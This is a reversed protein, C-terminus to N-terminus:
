QKGAGNTQVAVLSKSVLQMMTESDKLVIYRVGNWFAERSFAFDYVDGKEFKNSM